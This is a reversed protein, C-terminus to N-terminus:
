VLEDWAYTADVVRGHALQFQQHKEGGAARKAFLRVSMKGAADLAPVDKPALRLIAAFSGQADTMATAPASIWTLKDEHLWALRIAAGPVPQPLQGLPPRTEYLAGRIASLGPTFPYSVLPRLEVTHLPRAVQAAAIEMREFPRTGPEIVLKDFHAMSQKLWVFLGGVNVIPIGALGAATVKVGQSVRELSVPDLLEVALMAERLWARELPLRVDFPRAMM